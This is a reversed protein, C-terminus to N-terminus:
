TEPPALLCFLTSSVVRGYAAVSNLRLVSRGAIVPVKKNSSNLTVEKTFLGNEFINSPM